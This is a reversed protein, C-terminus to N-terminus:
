GLAHTSVICAYHRMWGKLLNCLLCVDALYLFCKWAFLLFRDHGRAFKERLVCLIHSLFDLTSAAKGNDPINRLHLELMPAIWSSYSVSLQPLPVQDWILVADKGWLKILFVRQSGESRIIYILVLFYSFFRTVSSCFSAFTKFGFVSHM